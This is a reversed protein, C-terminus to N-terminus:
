NLLARKKPTRQTRQPSQQKDSVLPTMMHDLSTEPSAVQFTQQGNQQVKLLELSKLTAKSSEEIPIIKQATELELPQSEQAIRIAQLAGTLVM